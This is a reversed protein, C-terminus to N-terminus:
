QGSRLWPPLSVAPAATPAIISPVVAAPMPAPLPLAMATPLPQQSVAMQAPQVQPMSIPPATMQAM